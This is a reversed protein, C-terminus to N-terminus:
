RNVEFFIFGLAIGIVVSHLKTYPKNLFVRFIDKDQPAFLGTAMKNDWIVIFIIAISLILMAIM